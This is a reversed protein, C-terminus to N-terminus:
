DVHKLLFKGTKIKSVIDEYTLVIGLDMQKYEESLEGIFHQEQNIKWIVWRYSKTMQPNGIDNYMRFCIDCPNGIYHHKGVKYWINYYIGFKLITHAYFYVEDKVVEDMVPHYDLPYRKKFVRIVSSNLITIDNAVYQFYCKYENDIEVCFLDGIKTVIRKAM